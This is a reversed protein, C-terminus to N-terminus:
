YFAPPARSQATSWIFLPAPSQYFLAPHAFPVPLLPISAIVPHPLGAAGGHPVCYPCDTMDMDQQGMGSKNASKNAADAPHMPMVHTAAHGPAVTCIDAEAWGAARKHAALAHSITPALASMLIALCAIWTALYHRTRRHMPGSKLVAPRAREQKLDPCGMPAVPMRSAPQLM